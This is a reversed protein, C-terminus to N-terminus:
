VGATREATIAVTLSAFGIWYLYADYQLAWIANGPYRARILSWLLLVVVAASIMTLLLALFGLAVGGRTRRGM